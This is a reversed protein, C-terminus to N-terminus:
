GTGNAARRSKMLFWGPLALLFLYVALSIYGQPKHVVHIGSYDSFDPSHGDACRLAQRLTEPDTDPPIKLCSGDLMGVAMGFYITKFLSDQRDCCCGESKQIQVIAEEITLGEPKMWNVPDACDEVLVITSSAGDIADKFGRRKDGDFFAEPDSVLKYTTHSNSSPMAPCRYSPPMQNALKSNNPGDWPENSDYLDYLNGADIYPLIRVRWSHMPKGDADLSYAEPLHLHASSYNHMALLCQRKNNACVVWFPTSRVAQVAPLLMGVTLAFIALIALIVLLDAFRVREELGPLSWDQRL